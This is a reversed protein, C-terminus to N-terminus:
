VMWLPLVITAKGATGDLTIKNGGVGTTINDKQLLQVTVLM